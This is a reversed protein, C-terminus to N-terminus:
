DWMYHPWIKQHSYRYELTIPFIFHRFPIVAYYNPYNPVAVLNYGGALPLYLKLLFKENQGIIRSNKELFSCLVLSLKVLPAREFQTCSLQFFDLKPYDMLLLAEKCKFWLKSLSKCHGRCGLHVHVHLLKRTWADLWQSLGLCRRTCRWGDGRSLRVYHHPSCTRWQWTSHCAWVLLSIM